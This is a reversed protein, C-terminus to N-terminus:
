KSRTRNDNKKEKSSDDFIVSIKLRKDNYEATINGGLKETLLKAISLGLGTGGRATNVTYYRDFLHETTVTDLEGASNEFMVLGNPFLKVTLDGDSYKAANSLINDFIRRLANKDLMREVPSEPMAIEPIIGRETLTGYFGAISQELIDNVCVRESSLSDASGSVVSYRLLEDSLSRMADTRERIISLYRATNESLDEHELLDLYGCIATLPTRLDHSINTVANKLETDGHRLKLREQRLRRLQSNIKEALERIVRDGSSVSVLTNTDTDLKDELERAIERLSSRFSLLNLFLVVVTLALAAIVAACWLEM